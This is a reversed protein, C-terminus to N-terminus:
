HKHFIHNLSTYHGLKPMYSIKIRIAGLFYIIYVSFVIIKYFFRTIYVLVYFFHSIQPFKLLQPSFKKAYASVMLFITSMVFFHKNGSVSIYAFMGPSIKVPCTQM